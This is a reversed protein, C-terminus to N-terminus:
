AVQMISAQRACRQLFGLARVNLITSKGDSNLAHRQSRM